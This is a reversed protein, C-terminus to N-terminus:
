AFECFTTFFSFFPPNLHALLCHKERNQSTNQQGKRGCRLGLNDTTEGVISNVAAIDTM